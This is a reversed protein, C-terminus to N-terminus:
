FDGNRKAEEYAGEKGVIFSGRGVFASIRYFLDLDMQVFMCSPPDERVQTALSRGALEMGEGEYNKVFALPNAYAELSREPIWGMENFIQLSVQWDSLHLKLIEDRRYLEIMPEQDSPIASWSARENEGTEGDADRPAPDSEVESEENVEELDELLGNDPDTVEVMYRRSGFDITAVANPFSQVDPVISLHERYDAFEAEEGPVIDWSLTTFTDGGTGPQYFHGGAKISLWDDEIAVDWWHYTEIEGFQRRPSIVSISVDLGSTEHPLRSLVHQLKAVSVLEAPRLYEAAVLKKLLLSAASLLERDREDFDYSM